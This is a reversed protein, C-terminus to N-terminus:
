HNSFTLNHNNKRLENFENKCKELAAMLQKVRGNLRLIEEEYNSSMRYNM